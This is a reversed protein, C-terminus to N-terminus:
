KTWSANVELTGVEVCEYYGDPDETPLCEMLPVVGSAAASTLKKSVSVSAEEACGWRDLLTNYGDQESYSYGYQSVCLMSFIDKNKGQRSAHESAYISTFTCTTLGEDEVCEDWGAYAGTGSSQYSFKEAAAAPAAMLLTALTVMTVMTISLGFLSLRNKM